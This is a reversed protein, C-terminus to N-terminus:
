IVGDKEKKGKSIKRETMLFIELASWMSLLRCLCELLLAFSAYDYRETSSLLM